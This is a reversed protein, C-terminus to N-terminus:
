LLGGVTWDLILAILNVCDWEVNQLGVKISGGDISLNKLRDGERM